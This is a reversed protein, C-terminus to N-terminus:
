VVNLKFNAAVDKPTHHIRAGLFQSAFSLALGSMYGSKCKSDKLFEHDNPCQSPIKSSM